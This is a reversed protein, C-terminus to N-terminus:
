HYEPVAAFAWHYQVLFQCNTTKLTLHFYKRKWTCPQWTYLFASNFQASNCDTTALLFPWDLLDFEHFELVLVDDKLGLMLSIVITSFILTASNIASDFKVLCFSFISTNHYAMLYPLILWPFSNLFIMFFPPLFSHSNSSILVQYSVHHNVTWFHPGM